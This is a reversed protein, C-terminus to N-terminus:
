LSSFSSAPLGESNFLTADFYDSWAYRVHLPSTVEDSWVVVREGEIKAQSKVYVGDEGALEFGRLLDGEKGQLDAAPEQFSVYLKDDVVEHSDYLPGSAVIDKGYSDALALRALRAGVSQKDGPHISTPHGIDMTIAMGTRPTTLSKRQADRLAAARGAGYNFPAIQVFYFPFDYGWKDRWDAIMAPFLKQYEEARGVNSEGQYWIAGQMSYGEIPHIMGNYLSTPLDNPSGSTFAPRDKLIAQHDQDYVLLDSQYLDGYFLASWEGELPLQPGDPVQLYIPGNVNSGGGGDYHLIAITNEGENLISSDFTYSRELQWDWTSGIRHGNVYTIDADDIAGTHLRYKGPRPSLEFTRRYWFAGNLPQSVTAGEILNTTTCRRHPLKTLKWSSVDTTPDALKKSKFDTTEFSEINQPQPIRDFQEVWSAMAEPDVSELMDLFYPFAGLSEKSTWAEAVTGGWTANIIGVPVGLEETLRRAFFYATASMDGAHDPTCTQWSGLYRETPVVAMNRPVDFMRVSPYNANAIEEEFNDIPENPMYGSLPMEMNSQGSALWVEGSLVDNIYITTDSSTFTLQYPGGASPTTIQTQWKGEEDPITEVSDGWSASIMIEEGSTGVGWLAADTEQQMVMHDSFLPSLSLPTREKEECSGMLVSLGVLIFITRLM